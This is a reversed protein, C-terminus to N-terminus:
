GAAGSAQLASVTALLHPISRAWLEQLVSVLAMSEGFLVGVRAHCRGHARLFARVLDPSQWIGNALRSMNELIEATDDALYYHLTYYRGDHRSCSLDLAGREDWGDQGRRQAPKLSHCMILTSNFGTGGVSWAGQACARAM